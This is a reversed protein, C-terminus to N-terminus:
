GCWLGTLAVSIGCAALRLCGHAERVTAPVASFRWASPRSRPAASVRRGYGREFSEDEFRSLDRMDGPELQAPCNDLVVVDAGVAALIPGQQGGGSALCLVKRGRLEPYWEAPVPKAPTLLLSWKGARANAIAESSVPRTWISGKQVEQNWAERNLELLDM